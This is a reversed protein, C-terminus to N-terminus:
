CIECNINAAKVYKAALFGIVAGVECEAANKIPPSM